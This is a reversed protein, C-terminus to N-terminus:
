EDSPLILIGLKGNYKVSLEPSTMYERDINEFIFDLLISGDKRILGMKDGRKAVFYPKDTFTAKLSEQSIKDFHLDAANGNLYNTLPTYYTNTGEKVRVFGNKASIIHKSQDIITGTTDLITTVKNIILLYSNVIDFNNGEIVALKQGKKNYINFPRLGRKKDYGIFFAGKMKIYKHSLPIIERAINLDFVGKLSDRSVIVLDSKKISKFKKYPLVTSTGSIFDFLEVKSGEAFIAKDKRFTVKGFKGEKLVNLDYDIIKAVKTETNEIAIAENYPSFEIKDYKKPLLENLDYDYLGQKKWGKDLVIFRENANRLYGVKSKKYRKNRSFIYFYYGNNIKYLDKNFQHGNRYSMATDLPIGNAGKIIIANKEEYLSFNAPADLKDIVTQLYANKQKRRAEKTNETAEEWTYSNGDRDFVFQDMKKRVNLYMADSLVEVYTYEIPLVLKGSLDIAGYLKGKKVVYLDKTQYDANNLRIEDIDLDVPKIRWTIGQQAQANLTIICIFILIIKKM